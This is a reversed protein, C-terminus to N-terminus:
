ENNMDEIQKLLEENEKQTRKIRKEIEGVWKKREYVMGEYFAILFVLTICLLTILMYLTNQNM